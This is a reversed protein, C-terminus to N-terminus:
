PSRAARTFGPIGHLFDCLIREGIGRYDALNRQLEDLDKASRNVSGHSPGDYHPPLGDLEGKMIRPALVM